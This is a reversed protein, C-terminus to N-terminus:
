SAPGLELTQPNAAVGDGRVILIEAQTTETLALEPLRIEIGLDHWTVIEADMEQGHVNITVKGPVPGFGEGAIQLSSGGSIPSDAPAAPVTNGAAAGEPADAVLSLSAPEASFNVPDVALIDVTVIAAGNNGEDIEPVERDADVLAHLHTFPAPEGTTLRGLSMAEFPLRIDVPHIEGPEMGLIRAGSNPLGAALDAQLGAVLVVNFAGVPVTSNNRIFARYRPGINQEPHGGDVFRVALLQLDYGAEIEVPPVDVWTGCGCIPLPQWVPVQWWDWAACPQCAIPRCFSPRPDFQPDCQHHFALDLWNSWKPMYCYHNNGSGCYHSVIHNKKFNGNIKGQFKTFDHGQNLRRSLDGGQHLKFQQDLKLNKFSQSKGLRGFDNSKIRTQFDGSKKFSGITFGPKRQGGNNGQGGSKGGFLNGADIKRGPGKGAQINGRSNNGQGFTGSGKGDGIKQGLNQGRQGNNNKGFNNGNNNNGQNFKKVQNSSGQGNGFSNGFKKGNQSGFDGSGPQGNGNQRGGNQSSGQSFKPLSGSNFQRQGQSKLSQGSNSNGGNFSRFSSGGGGTNGGRFNGSGGGGGGGGFSRGGGGGGGGGGKGGGGRAFTFTTLCVAATFVAAVFFMKNRSHM